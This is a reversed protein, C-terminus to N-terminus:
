VGLSVCMLLGRQIGFQGGDSETEGVSTFVLTVLSQVDRRAFLV